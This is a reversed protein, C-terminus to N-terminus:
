KTSKSADTNNPRRASPAAVESFPVDPDYGFFIFGRKGRFLGPSRPEASM